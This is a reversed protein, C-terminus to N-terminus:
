LDQLPYKGRVIRAAAVYENIGKEALLRGIFIFTIPSIPPVTYPYSALDLGIGGIVSIANVRINNRQLLDIPDDPNLFVIRDLFRLSFKYLLVNISRIIRTKHSIGEPQDTFLYGLGELM